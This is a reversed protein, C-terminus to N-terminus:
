VPRVMSFVKALNIEHTSGYFFGQNLKRVLTISFGTNPIRSRKTRIRIRSREENIKLTCFINKKM